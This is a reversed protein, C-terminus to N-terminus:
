NPSTFILPYHYYNKLWLNEEPLILPRLKRRLNQPLAIVVVDVLLRRCRLIGLLSTRCLKVYYNSPLAIEINVQLEIM